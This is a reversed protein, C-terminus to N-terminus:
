ARIIKNQISYAAGYLASCIAGSLSQPKGEKNRCVKAKLDKWAQPMEKIATLIMKQIGYETNFFRKFGYISSIFKEPPDRYVIKGDEDQRLSSFRDTIAKRTLGMQPYKAVFANYAKECISV